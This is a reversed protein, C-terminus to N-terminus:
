VGSFTSVGDRGECGKDTIWMGNKDIVQIGIKDTVMMHVDTIVWNIFGMIELM